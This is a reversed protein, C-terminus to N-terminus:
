FFGLLAIKSYVILDEASGSAKVGTINVALFFLLVGIAILEKFGLMESTPKRPKM